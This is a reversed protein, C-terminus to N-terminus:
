GLLEAELDVDEGLGVSAPEVGFAILQSRMTTLAEYYGQARGREFPDGGSDPTARRNRVAATRGRELLLVVLDHLYNLEHDTMM